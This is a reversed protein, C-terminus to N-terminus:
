EFGDIAALEVDGSKAISVKLRQEVGGRRFRVLFSTATGGGYAAFEPHQAGMAQDAFPWARMTVVDAGVATQDQVGDKRSM